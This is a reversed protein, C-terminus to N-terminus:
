SVYPRDFLPVGRQRMPIILAAGASGGEPAAGGRCSLAVCTILVTRVISHQLM